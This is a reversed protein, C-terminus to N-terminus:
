VWCNTLLYTYRAKCPVRNNTVTKVFDSWQARDQFLHIRDLAGYEYDEFHM